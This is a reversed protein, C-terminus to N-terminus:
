FFYLITNKMSAWLTFDIQFHLVDLFYFGVVGYILVACITILVTRVGFLQFKKNGNRFYQKRTYLLVLSVFGAVSAEEYDIGKTIHGLLSILTLSLALFYATRYGKLLFVSVLILIIGILLVFYNSVIILSQPLFDQLLNVRDSLSPTLVSVIDIMGLILILFAPIIRLILNNKKFLFTVMGVLLPAWFEFFRYIMTVSIAAISDMGYQVLLVSLSLEIAGIGRLFPSIILFITAVLYGMFAAEFPASVDLAFFAIYLHLIGALDILVSILLCYYVSVKSFSGNSMQEMVVDLDPQYKLLFSYFGGRNLFSRILYYLLFILIFLGGFASLESDSITKQFLLWISAPVAIVFVSLIGCVAYISSSLHIETKSVGRKETKSTFFALSSIGGAPLFVSIFNRRLFLEM